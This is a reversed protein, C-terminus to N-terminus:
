TGTPIALLLCLPLPQNEILCTRKREYFSRNSGIVPVTWCLRTEDLCKDPRVAFQPGEYSLAIILCNIMYQSIM